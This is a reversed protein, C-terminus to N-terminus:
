ENKESGDNLIKFLHKSMKWQITNKASIEVKAGSKPNRGIRSKIKKVKFTGFGRIEVNQKKSLARSIEDLVSNLAKELDKRLFNPYNDALQDLIKSKVISM